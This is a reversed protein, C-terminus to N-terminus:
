SFSASRVLRPGLAAVTVSLKGGIDPAGDISTGGIAVAPEGRKEIALPSGAAQLSDVALPNVLEHLLVTKAQKGTMGAAPALTLVGALNGREPVQAPTGVPRLEGAPAAFQHVHGEHEIAM